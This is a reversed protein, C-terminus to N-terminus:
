ALLSAALVAIVLLAATLARIVRPDRLRAALLSRAGTAGVAATIAGVMCQACM